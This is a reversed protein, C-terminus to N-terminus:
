GKLFFTRHVKFFPYLRTVKIEILIYILINRYGGFTEEQVEITLANDEVDGIPIM